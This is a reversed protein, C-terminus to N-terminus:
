PSTTFAIQGTLTCAPNDNMADITMDYDGADLGSWAVKQGPKGVHFTKGKFLDVPPSRKALLIMGLGGKCNFGGTSLWSSVRVEANVAGGQAVHFTTPGVRQRDPIAFKDSYSGLGEGFEGAPPDGEATEGIEMGCGASAIAVIWLISIARV